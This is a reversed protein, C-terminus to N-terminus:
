EKEQHNIASLLAATLEHAQSITLSEGWGKSDTIWIRKGLRSVWNRTPYNWGEKDRFAWAPQHVDMPPNPHPPVNEPALLGAEALAEVADHPHIRHEGPRRAAELVELARDYNPM